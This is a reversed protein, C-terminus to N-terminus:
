LCFAFTKSTNTVVYSYICLCLHLCCSFLPMLSHVILVYMSVQAFQRDADLNTCRLVAVPIVYIIEAQTQTM